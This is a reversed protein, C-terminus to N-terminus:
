KRYKEIETEVVGLCAVVADVWTQALHGPMNTQGILKDIRRRMVEMAALARPDKTGPDRAAAILADVLAEASSTPAETLRSLQEVAADRASTTTTPETAM